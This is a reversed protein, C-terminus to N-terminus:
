RLTRYDDILARVFAFAVAAVLVLCLAKDVVSM